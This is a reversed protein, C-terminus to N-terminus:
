EERNGGTAFRMDASDRELRLWENFAEYQRQQRLDDVFDTLDSKMKVEDAPMRAVLFAVFGGDRSEILRSPQGPKLDSVAAKLLSLSVRSEVEPLFRTTPTFVPLPVPVVQAESCIAEFTKGLALENTVSQAFARGAERAAELARTQRFDQTVRALISDMPPIESPVRRKLALVFVANSSVVPASYPEEPTLGFATRGFTPPYDLGLPGMQDFPDLLRSPLEKASALRDMQDAEGPQKEHLDFLEEAFETAKRRAELLAQSLRLESKILLKAADAAMPRGDAEKFANDGRQQYLADLIQLLNTQEGLFRDAEALYNSSDFRVYSVQVKEPVRYRAMQNTFFQALADPTVEVAALHNSSSFTVVSAQLQEHQERYLQEAESPPILQGSLGALQILHQLAIEHRAFALFQETGIQRPKLVNNMFGDYIRQDFRRDTDVFVTTIWDAVARESVQINLERIKEILFLRSQAERDDNFFQRSSADEDPWAGTGSFMRYRLRAETLAAFAEERSVKRGKIEGYTDNGPRGRLYSDADPTFFIVFSVIVAASILIWLWKQHKRISAFM